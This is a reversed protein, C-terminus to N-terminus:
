LQSYPTRDDQNQALYMYSNETHIIIYLYGCCWGQADRHLGPIPCIKPIRNEHPTDDLLAVDLPRTTLFIGQGLSTNNLPVLTWPHMTWPISCLLSQQPSVYQIDDFLPSSCFFMELRWGSSRKYIHL